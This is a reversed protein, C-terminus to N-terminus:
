CIGCARAFTTKGGNNAGTVMYLRASDDLILDNTKIKDTLVASPDRMVIEKYFVLDYAGKLVTKRENAPLIKPRCM